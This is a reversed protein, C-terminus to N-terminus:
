QGKTVLRRWESIMLTMANGRREEASMVNSRSLPRRTMLMQPSSIKIKIRKFELLLLYRSLPYEECM